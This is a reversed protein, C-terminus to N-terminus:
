ADACADLRKQLFRREADSRAAAMAQEFHTRAAWRDGRRLELEGIAAPYFPYRQLRDRDEIGRLAELGAVPGDRQGLAIARNLGVVPSPNLAMLRDYLSVILAWDTEDLTRASAHAAALAAEVHYATLTEGRSARELLALGRQTLEPDWRERDQDVLASLEGAPDLRAPLRAAHLSMLAALADTAPTAAPPHERLQLTLRLAEECLEARIPEESSAGHYGENFLLYLARQVTELRAAFEADGLDFLRKAEALTKKGRSIRKEVAARGELFARAIEEAGFGCMVNLILALQAEEALRPHCCSFMMRLQEEAISRAAFAEDVVSGVTWESELTRRLEPAFTRATRDGRLVDLARHKAAAMLWASPNAPIGGTRWVEVAKCLADQVVDEALSLQQVGFLRTLAALMRASERRLFHADLDV